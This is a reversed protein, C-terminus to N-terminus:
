KMDSTDPRDRKKLMDQTPESFKELYQDTLIGEKRWKLLTTHCNDHSCDDFCDGVLRYSKRIHKNLKLYKEHNSMGKRNLMRVAKGNIRASLAELMEGRINKFVEWDSEPVKDM